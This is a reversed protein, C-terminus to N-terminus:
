AAHVPQAAELTAPLNEHLTPTFVREVIKSKTSKYLQDGMGDAGIKSIIRYYSLTSGAPLEKNMKSLNM